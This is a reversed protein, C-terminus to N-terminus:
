SAVICRRNTFEQGPSQDICACTGNVAHHPHDHLHNNSVSDGTVIDVVAILPKVVAETSLAKECIAHLSLNSALGLVDFLVQVNRDCPSHSYQALCASTGYIIEDMIM